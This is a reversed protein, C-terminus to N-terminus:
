IYLEMIDTSHFFSKKMINKYTCNKFFIDTCLSRSSCDKRWNSRSYRRSAIRAGGDTSSGLEQETSKEPALQNSVAAMQRGGGRTQMGVARERGGIRTDTGGGGRRPSRM